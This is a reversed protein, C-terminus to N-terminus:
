NKICVVPWGNLKDREGRDVQNTTVQLRRRWSNVNNSQTSSWRFGYVGRDNFAGWPDRDGTLVSVIWSLKNWTWWTAWFNTLATWDADTPLNWWVWLAWCVSKTTDEIQTCSSTNCSAPLWMAEAWTYLAWDTNCSISNNNFCWKEIIDTISPLTYWNSLMTWHKMNTSTWCKWDPWLITTYTYWWASVTNWCSFSIVGVCIKNWVSDFWQLVKWVGCDQNIVKDTMKVTWDSTSWTNVLIKNFYEMIVWSKLEWSPFWSPWSIAYVWVWWLVILFFWIYFLTIKIISKIM